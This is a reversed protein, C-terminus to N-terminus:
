DRRQLTIDGWAMRSIGGEFEFLAMSEQQYVFGCSWSYQGLGSHKEQSTSVHNDFSRELRSVASDPRFQLKGAEYLVGWKGYENYDFRLTDEDLHFVLYYDAQGLVVKCGPNYLTDVGHERGGLYVTAGADPVLRVASGEWTGLLAAESVLTEPASTIERSDSGCSLFLLLVVLFLRM